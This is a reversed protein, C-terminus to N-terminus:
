RAVKFAYRTVNVLLRKKRAFEPDIFPDIEIPGICAAQSGDIQYLAALIADAVGQAQTVVTSAQEREETADTSTLADTIAIDVLTEGQLNGGKKSARSYQGKVPVIKATLGEDILEKRDFDPWYAIAPATSWGGVDTVTEAIADLLTELEM